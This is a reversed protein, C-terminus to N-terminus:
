KVAVIVTTGDDYTVHDKDPCTYNDADCAGAACLRDETGIPCLQSCIQECPDAANSEDEFADGGCKGKCTGKCGEPDFSGAGISHGCFDNEGGGGPSIVDQARAGSAGLKMTVAVAPAAYALKTGTTVITRRTLRSSATKAFLEENM